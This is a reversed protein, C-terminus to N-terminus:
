EFVVQMRKVNANTRRLNIRCMRYTECCNFSRIAFNPRVDKRSKKAAQLLPNDADNAKRKANNPKTEMVSKETEVNSKEKPLLGSKNNLPLPSNPQLILTSTMRTSAITSSSCLTNPSSCPYSCTATHTWCSIRVKLNRKGRKSQDVLKGKRFCIRYIQKAEVVM